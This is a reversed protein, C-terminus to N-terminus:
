TDSKNLWSDYSGNQLANLRGTAFAQAEVVYRRLADRRAADGNVRRLLAWAGFVQSYIDALDRAAAEALQPSEKASVADRYQEFLRRNEIIMARIEDCDDPCPLAESADLLDGLTDSM